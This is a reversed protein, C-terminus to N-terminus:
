NVFKIVQLVCQEYKTATFLEDFLEMPIGDSYLFSCTQLLLM